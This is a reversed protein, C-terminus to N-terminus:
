EVSEVLGYFGYHYKGNVGEIWQSLDKLELFETDMLLAKGIATGYAPIRMGVRSTM